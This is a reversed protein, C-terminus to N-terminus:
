RVSGRQAKAEQVQISARQVNEALNRSTVESVGFMAGLGQKALSNTLRRIMGAPDGSSIVWVIEDGSYWRGTAMVDSSRVQLASRIRRDVEEYGLEANLKHVDNIDAFIIHTAKVAVRQWVVLELGQRSYCGYTQDHALQELLIRMNQKNM